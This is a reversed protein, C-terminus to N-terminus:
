ASIRKNEISRGVIILLIGGIIASLSLAYMPLKNYFNGILLGYWDGTYGFVPGPGLYGTVMLGIVFLLFGIVVVIKGKTLRYEDKAL